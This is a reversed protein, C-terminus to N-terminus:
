PASYPASSVESMELSTSHIPSGCNPTYRQSIQGSLPKILKVQECFGHSQPLFFSPLYMYHLIGRMYRKHDPKELFKM